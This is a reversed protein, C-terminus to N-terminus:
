QGLLEAVICQIDEGDFLCDGNCDRLPRGNCDVALGVRNCPCVDEVDPVGDNDDDDDCADGLGDVDKQLM